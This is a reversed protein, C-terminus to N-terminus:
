GHTHSQTHSFFNYRNNHSMSHSSTEHGATIFVSLEEKIQERDMLVEKQHEGADQLTFVLM